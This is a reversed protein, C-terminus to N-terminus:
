HALSIAPGVEVELIIDQAAGSPVEVEAAETIGVCLHVKVSHVLNHVHDEMGVIIVVLVVLMRLAEEELHMTTVTALAMTLMPIGEMAVTLTGVVM